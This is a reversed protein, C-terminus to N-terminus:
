KSASRKGTVAGSLLESQSSQNTKQQEGTARSAKGFGNGAMTGSKIPTSNGKLDTVAGSNFTTKNNLKVMAAMSQNHRAPDHHPAPVILSHHESEHLTSPHLNSSLHPTKRFGQSTKPRRIHHGDLSLNHKDQRKTIADRSIDDLEEGYSQDEDQYMDDDQSADIVRGKLKRQNFVMEIEQQHSDKKKIPDIASGQGM